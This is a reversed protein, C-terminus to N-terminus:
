KLGAVFRSRGRDDDIKGGSALVSFAQLYPRAEDWDPSDGGASEVLAVIPEVALLFAPQLDDGLLDSAEDFTDSDSLKARPSLAEAAAGPGYAIAVRETSRAIVLPKPADPLAVAFASEAGEVQTPRADVGGRTRLVGILKGFASAARDQDTVQIVLGGDISDVSSGRAFLAVDGIWSFVDQELDLGLQSRLQEAIAAGGFAGAAQQYIARATEGLKPSGLAAWSDGPLEGLLPTSGTGTLAGFRKFVEAGDATTVADIALRDGNASFSGTIPGLKDLPFISRFQEFQAAAEPDAKLAADVLAKADVFFHALRDDELEDVADTYRDTEALSDGDIASITRKLAPETGFVVFGDTVAVAGDPGAKYSVGEFERDDFRQGSSTIARDVAEKAEDEDTASLIAAGDADESSAQGSPAAMWFAAKEGLWPEVDRAYDIRPKESEAFAKAVLEEIKAEPDDTRLVKGAAALADERLSGEPRLTAEFYMPADRPVASAPDDGGSSTGGGCGVLLVTLVLSALAAVRRLSSM